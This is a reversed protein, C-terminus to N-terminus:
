EQKIRRASNIGDMKCSVPAPPMRLGSSTKGIIRKLPSRAQSAFVLFSYL